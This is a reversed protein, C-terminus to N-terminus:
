KTEGQYTTIKTLAADLRSQALRVADALADVNLPHEQDGTLATVIYMDDLADDLEGVLNFLDLMIDERNM